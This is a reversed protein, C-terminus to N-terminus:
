RVDERVNLVEQSCAIMGSATTIDAELDYSVDEVGGSITATILAGEITVPGISLGDPTASITATVITDREGNINVALWEYWDWSFPLSDGPTKQFSSPVINTM